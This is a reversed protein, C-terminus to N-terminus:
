YSLEALVTTVVILGVSLPALLLAATRVTRLRVRRAALVVLM